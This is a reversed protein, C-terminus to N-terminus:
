SCDERQLAIPGNDEENSEVVANLTDLTLEAPVNLDPPGSLDARMRITAVSYAPLGEVVENMVRMKCVASVLFKGADATGKNDVVVQLVLEGADVYASWSRLVLDPLAAEPPPATPPETPPATPPEPPPATLPATPPATPLEPAPATSPPTPGGPRPNRPRRTKAPDPTSVGPASTAGPTSPAVASGSPASGVQVCAAALLAVLTMFLIRAM